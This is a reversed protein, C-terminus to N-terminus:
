AREIARVMATVAEPCLDFHLLPEIMEAESLCYNGEHRIFDLRAYVPQYDDFLHSAKIAQDMLEGTPEAREYKGGYFHQVRFDDEAPWKHITHSYTGDIFIVSWEGDRIEPLFPQVLVPRGYQATITPAHFDARKLRTLHNGANSIRPKVVLEDHKPDIGADTGDFNTPVVRVGAREYDKLYIKDSNWVVTNLRNRVKGKLGGLFNFFGYRDQFYDWCSRIVTVTKDDHHFDHGWVGTTVNHGAARLGDRLLQDDPNLDPLDACTLLHVHM